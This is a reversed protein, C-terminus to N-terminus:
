FNKRQKNNTFDKSLNGSFFDNWWKNDHVKSKGTETKNVYLHGEDGNYHLILSLKTNGKTFNISLKWEASGTSDNSGDTTILVVM